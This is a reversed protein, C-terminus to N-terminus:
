QSSEVVDQLVARFRGRFWALERDEGRLGHWTLAVTLPPTEFPLPAVSWEPRPRGSLRRSPVLTLAPWRAVLDLAEGFTSVTAWVRRQMGRRELEDDVIGWRKGKRSVAVHPHRCFDELTWRDGRLLSPHAAVVYTDTTVLESHLEPNKPGPTGVDLDVLGKRFADLDELAEPLFSM